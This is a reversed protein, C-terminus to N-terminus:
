LINESFAEFIFNKAKLNQAEKDDTLVLIKLQSLDWNKKLAAKIDEITLKEISAIQDSIENPEIGFFDYWVINSAVGKPTESVYAFNSLVSQKARVFDKELVNGGIFDKILGDFLTLVEQVVDSRCKVKFQYLGGLQNYAQYGYAGYTLGRKERLDKNLVSELSSGGFAAIAVRLAWYDASGRKIAPMSWVVESQKLNSKSVVKKESNKLLTPSRSDGIYIAHGKFVKNLHSKVKRKHFFGSPGVIAIRMSQNQMRELFDGLDKGTIKKINEVYGSKPSSYAGEGYNQKKTYYSVLSSPHDPIQSIQALTKKKIREFESEEFTSQTLVMEILKLLEKEKRKLSSFSLTVADGDFSMGARLAHEDMWDSLKSLPYETTSKFLNESLLGLIGVKDKPIDRQGYSLLFQYHVTPLDSQIWFLKQLDDAKSLSDQIFNFEVKAGAFSQISGFSFLIFLYSIIINKFTFKM